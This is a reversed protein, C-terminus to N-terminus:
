PGEPKRLRAALHALVEERNGAYRLWLGRFPDLRSPRPFPSLHVGERHPYFARIERWPRAVSRGLFRVRVGEEGLEYRTPALYRLVSGALLGFSLVGLWASAFSVGVGAPVAAIIALLALSRPWDDRLPWSTWVLRPM